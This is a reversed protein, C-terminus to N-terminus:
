IDTLHSLEHDHDIVCGTCEPGGPGGCILCFRANEQCHKEFVALLVGDGPEPIGDDLRSLAAASPATM